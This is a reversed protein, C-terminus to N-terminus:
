MDNYNRLFHNNISMELGASAYIPLHVSRALRRQIWRLSNARYWDWTWSIKWPAILYVILTGTRSCGLLAAAFAMGGWGKWALLVAVVNFVLTQWVEVIALKTFALERELKVQPMVMFSTILLSLATIRFLWTYQDALGYFRVLQPSLVWLILVLVLLFLQQVTFVASYDKDEPEATSRILNCALGTGGFSGLFQILFIVIAYIGFDKPSLLRALLINGAINLGHVFVQRGGLAVVGRFAKKAVVNSHLGGDPGSNLSSDLSSNPIPPITLTASSV